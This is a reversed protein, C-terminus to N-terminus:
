GLCRQVGCIQAMLSRKKKSPCGFVNSNWQESACSFVLIAEPLPLDPQWNDRVMRNFDSHLSWGSFYCFPMQRREISSADLMLLLPRHDSKMCLLHLVLATPFTSLWPDNCITHDMRVAVPGKYWTFEPGHFRKRYNPSAYIFSALCSSTSGMASIRCLIFQFHCFLVDIAVNDFWCLWIGESFGVVEVCYSNTFSPAKIVKATSEGSVRTEVFVFIDPNQDCMYQNAFHTFKPSGCGQANWVVIKANMMSLSPLDLIMASLLTRPIIPLNRPM